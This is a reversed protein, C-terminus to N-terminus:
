IEGGLSYRSYTPNENNITKGPSFGKEEGSIIERIVKMDVYRKDHMVLYEIASHCIATIRRPYGRSNFYIERISPETFLPLKDAYGAQALRYNIMNRTEEMNLPPLIYRFAVRDMFNKIRAVKPLLEMQGMIVLQLLKYENTEYNLLVRLVELLSKSLNQGEDILLVITKNERVGKQYFYEQLADKYDMTENGKIEIGFVRCLHSLFHDETKYSPALIIHFIFDKERNFNQLFARSLTTKGTGIDGLVISLGRRLRVAIELRNLVLNHVSSRYFFMPDPSTSFPEKNLKLLKYYSM